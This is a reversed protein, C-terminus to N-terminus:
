PRSRPLLSLAVQIIRRTRPPPKRVTAVQESM